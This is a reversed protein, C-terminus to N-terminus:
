RGARRGPWTIGMQVVAPKEDRAANGPMHASVVVKGVASAM